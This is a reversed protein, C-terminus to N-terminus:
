RFMDDVRAARERRPMRRVELGFAVNRRASLHPFLAFHQFVMGVCRDEPPSETVDRGELRVTGRDPSLYGGILRLLTSKGCGSPGPLCLLKGAELSLSMDCVAPAARGFSRQLGEIELAHM